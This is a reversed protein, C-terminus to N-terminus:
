ERAYVDETATEGRPSATKRSELAEEAGQDVEGGVTEEIEALRAAPTGRGKLWEEYLGIPDRAGWYAFQEAALIHRAEQEDHTAHGGMRFTNADLIVPGDGARCRAAALV